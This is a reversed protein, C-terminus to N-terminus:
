CAQLLCVSLEDQAEECHGAVHGLVLHRQGAKEIVLRVPADAQILALKLVPPSEELLSEMICTGTHLGAWDPEWAGSDCDMLCDLADVGGATCLAMAGASRM